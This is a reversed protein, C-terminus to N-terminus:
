ALGAMVDEFTLLHINGSEAAYEVCGEAFGSRAFIYIKKDREPFIRSQWKIIELQEAGVQERTWLCIGLLLEEESLRTMIDIDAQAGMGPDTGWWHGIEAGISGSLINAEVYQGCMESFIEGIYGDTEPSIRELTKDTLGRVILSRNVAVFRYWFCSM